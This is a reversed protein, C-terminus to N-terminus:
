IHLIHIYMTLNYPTYLMELSQMNLYVLTLLFHFYISCKSQSIQITVATTFISTNYTNTRINYM